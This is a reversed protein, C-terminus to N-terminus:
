SANIVFATLSIKSQRREQYVNSFINSSLGKLERQFSKKPEFPKGPFKKIYVIDGLNVPLYFEYKQKLEINSNKISQM